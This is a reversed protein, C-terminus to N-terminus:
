ITSPRPPDDPGNPMRDGPASSPSTAYRAPVMVFPMSNSPPAPVSAPPSWPERSQSTAGRVGESFATNRLTIGLEEAISMLANWIVTLTVPDLSGNSSM